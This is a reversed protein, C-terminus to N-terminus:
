TKRRQSLTLRDRCGGIITREFYQLSSVFRESNQKVAFFYHADVSKFSGGDLFFRGSREFLYAVLFWLRGRSFISAFWLFYGVWLFVQRRAVPRGGGFSDAGSSVDSKRFTECGEMM